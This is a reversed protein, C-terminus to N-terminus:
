NLLTRWKSVLGSGLKSKCHCHCHFTNRLSILALVQYSHLFSHTDRDCAISVKVWAFCLTRLCKVQCKQHDDDLFKLNHTVIM